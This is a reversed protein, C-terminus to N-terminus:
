AQKSNSAILNLTVHTAALVAVLACVGLWGYAGYLHLALWSGVAGGLYACTMYATNRRSRAAPDLAYIRVQNAVMGSQMAVDLVLTGAILWGLGGTTAPALLGAALIVAGACILNILDPGRRDVQRGALPVVLMTAANVLALLGVARADYGYSPGTLLLAACTWVASFGAFLAAQNRCSRRLDPERLLLRLPEILLAPYSQRTAPETTPLARTLVVALLLLLIGALLYPLRWSWWTALYGSATRSLLMGGTGGSLLLGSTLGRREPPVLGAVMPGLVPAVVTSVGIMLSLAVLPTLSPAASAALLATGTVGLLTVVLRRNPVRDGLPVVLLLGATYGFQAATVVAAAAGPSVGLGAAIAPSISQPFYVNGVTCGCVTAILLVVRTTM